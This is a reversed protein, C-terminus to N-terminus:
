SHCAAQRPRPPHAQSCKCIAESYPPYDPHLGGLTAIVPLCSDTLTATIMLHHRHHYCIHYDPRGLPSAQPVLFASSPSYVKLKETEAWLSGNRSSAGMKWVKTCFPLLLGWCRGTKRNHRKMDKHILSGPFQLFFDDQMMLCSDETLLSNRETHIHTSRCDSGSWYEQKPFGMSLPAQPSCDM